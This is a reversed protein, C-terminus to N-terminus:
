AANTKTNHAWAFSGWKSGMVEDIAWLGISFSAATRVFDRRSLGFRRRTREVEADALSMISRQQDTTEPPFFEGNSAPIVDIPLDEGLELERPKRKFNM